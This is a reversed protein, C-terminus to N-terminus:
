AVTSANDSLGSTMESLLIYITKGLFIPNKYYTLREIKRIHENTWEEYGLPYFTKNVQKPIANAM